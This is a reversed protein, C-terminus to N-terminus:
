LGVPSLGKLHSACVSNKSSFAATQLSSITSNKIEIQALGQGAAPEAWPQGSVQTSAARLAQFNGHNRDPKWDLAWAMWLLRDRAGAGEALFFPTGM